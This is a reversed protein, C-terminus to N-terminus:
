VNGKESVGDDIRGEKLFYENVSRRLPYNQLIRIAGTGCEQKCWACGVCTDQNIVSKGDERFTIAEKPCATACKRCGVCKDHDTTATFGCGHMREKIVSDSNRIVKMALCCCPCCFCFMRYENMQDNDLGWIYQEGEVMEACCFLGAEKARLIHAKAEEVTAERAIGTEVVRRGATNIFICGLDKDYDQCDFARRCVCTHLIAIYEAKEMADFVLDIPFIASHSHDTLDHNLPLVSGYTYGNQGFGLMKNVLKYQVGDRPGKTANDVYRFSPGPDFGPKNIYDASWRALWSNLGFKDPRNVRMPKEPHEMRKLRDADLFLVNGNADVNGGDRPDMREIVEDPFGLEKLKKVDIKTEM